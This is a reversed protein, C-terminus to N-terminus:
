KPQQITRRNTWRQLFQNPNMGGLFGHPGIADFEQLWQNIVVSVETMSYFLRRDPHAAGLIANISECYAKQWPSGPDIYRTDVHNDKLWQQV